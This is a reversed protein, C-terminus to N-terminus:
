EPKFGIGKLVAGMREHDARLALMMEDTTRPLGVEFGIARLREKVAPQAMAQLTAGRVRAQVPAPVGPQCWLGLWALAELTPYGLETFTPVDPLVQSRQPPSVAFARLKGSRILPLSSPIADFMLPVHGGVVDALGPTSGKYGVHTMDIGAAHNLLLGLVHSLTGPSYSAVNVQGPHAKVWAILEALNKAPLSPHGVLVLGGRALEALPRIERAMDFRLKVMHPVESVLSNVAVLLTHGDHPSQILDNVALVGTAGPRPEVIVTQNLEKALGDAVLRALIDASAGAAGAAIIRVPKSPWGQARVGAGKLAAVAAAGALLARRALWPRTPHPM